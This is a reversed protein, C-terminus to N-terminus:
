DPFDGAALRLQAREAVPAWVDDRLSELIRRPTSKNYALTLRIGTDSDLALMEMVRLPVVRKRAIMDRVRADGDRALVEIVQAPITKNAAVAFRLTPYRDVVALWVAESAEVHAAQNSIEPDDANVLGVFEEATYLM